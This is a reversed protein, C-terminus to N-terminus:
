PNGLAPEHARARRARAFRLWELAMREGAWCDNSYDGSPNVDWFVRFPHGRRKSAERVWYDNVFSLSMIEPEKPRLPVVNSKARTM